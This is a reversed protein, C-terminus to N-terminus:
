PNVRPSGSSDDSLPKNARANNIAKVLSQLEEWDETTFAESEGAATVLYLHFDTLRKTDYSGIMILFAVFAIVSFCISGVAGLMDAMDNDSIFLLIFSFAAISASILMVAVSVYQRNKNTVKEKRETASTRLSTIQDLYYTQHSAVLRNPTVKVGGHQYYVNENEQMMKPEMRQLQERYRIDNLRRNYELCYPRDDLHLFM